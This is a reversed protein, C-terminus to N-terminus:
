KAPAKNDRKKTYLFRKIKMTPTKEFEEPHEEVRSIHSFSSVKSNVYKIVDAKIDDMKASLNDKLDYYKRELEEYNFKVMAILKGKDETVVSESVFVLGNLINEIEEPYINEGSPGVLMNGLRGKIYLYGDQDIYGLDNTRFWGDATFASKTAEPNKFYGKMVSPSSAVIEGEGTQPNINDLRLKVYKMAWGTSQLRNKPQVMGALLPATETLGYGVAYPFGADLLFQETQGDLKAGGIGFFNLCGGFAKYIKRGAIKHLQKRIFGNSYLKRMFANSTFRALVQSRFIKEMILPVSLMCTPRVSKLAPMLVSVSPPRDLYTVTAGCAFPYLMGISCEYAHSLPLISLFRDNESIPFIDYAMDIQACLAAHTLMVGKPSSTTGSTYIISAIDDPQPTAATGRQLPEKRSIIGLNKTRIVVKQSDITKKSLKSFLKDSVLLAQAESHEIIMDFEPGSFGPLIPVVIMSLTTVAFYCVAWNPMSSSLLAVKDGASLGADLLMNQLDKVRKDFESFTVNEREFMANAVKSAFKSTSSIYLESLTNFTM